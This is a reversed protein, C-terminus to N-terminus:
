FGVKEVLHGELFSLVREMMDSLSLLLLCFQMSFSPLLMSDDIADNKASM